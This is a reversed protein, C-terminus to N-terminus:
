VDAPLVAYLAQGDRLKEFVAETPKYPNALDSGSCLTCEELGMRNLIKLPTDDPTIDIEVAASEYGAIQLTITKIQLLRRFDRRIEEIDITIKPKGEEAEEFEQLESLADETDITSSRKAVALLFDGELLEEFVQEDPAFYRNPAPPIALALHALDLRSLIDGATDNPNVQITFPPTVSGVLKVSIRKMPIGVVTDKVM